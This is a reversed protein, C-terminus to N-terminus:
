WPVKWFKDYRRPVKELQDVLYQIEAGHRLSLSALRTIAAQEDTVLDCVNDIKSGDEMELVYHGRKNKTLTGTKVNNIMGNKGAFVEYPLGHLM